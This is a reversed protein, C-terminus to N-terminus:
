DMIPESGVADCSGLLPAGACCVLGCPVAVRGAPARCPALVGRVQWLQSQSSPSLQMVRDASGQAICTAEKLSNFFHARVAQESECPV